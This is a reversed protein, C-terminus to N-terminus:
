ISYGIKILLLEKATKNKLSYQLYEPFEKLKYHNEGEITFHGDGGFEENGAGSGDGSGDGLLEKILIVDNYNKQSKM